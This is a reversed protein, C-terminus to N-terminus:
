RMVKSINSLRQVSASLCPAPGTSNQFIKLLGGRLSPCVNKKQRGIKSIDLLRQVSASLCTNITHPNQLIQASKRFLFCRSMALWTQVKQFYKLLSKFWFAALCPRIRKDNQSTNSCVELCFRCVLRSLIAIKSFFTQSIKKLLSASFCVHQPSGECKFVGLYAKSCLPLCVFMCISRNLSVLFHSPSLITAAHRVFNIYGGLGGFWADVFPRSAAFM